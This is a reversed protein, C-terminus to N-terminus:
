CSASEKFQEVVAASSLPRHAALDAAYFTRFQVLLPIPQERLVNGVIILKRVIEPLTAYPSLIM